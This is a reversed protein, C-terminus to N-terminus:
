ASSVVELPQVQYEMGRDRFDPAPHQSRIEEYKEMIATWQMNSLTLLMMQDFFGQEIANADVISQVFAKADDESTFGKVPTWQDWQSYRAVVLHITTNM